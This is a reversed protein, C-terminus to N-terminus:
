NPLLRMLRILVVEPKSNVQCTPFQRSAVARCARAPKRLNEFFIEHM